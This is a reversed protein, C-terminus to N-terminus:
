LKLPLASFNKAEKKLGKSHQRRKRHSETQSAGTQRNQAGQWMLPKIRDLPEIM